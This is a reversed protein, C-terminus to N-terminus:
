LIPSLPLPGPKPFSLSPYHPVPHSSATSKTSSAHTKSLISSYILVPHFPILKIPFPAHKPFSLSLISRNSLLSTTLHSFTPKLFSLVHTLAVDLAKERIKFIKPHPKHCTSPTINNFKRAITVNGQSHTFTHSNQIM